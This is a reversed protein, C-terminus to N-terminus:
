RGWGRRRRRRWRRRRWGRWGRLRRGQWGRGRRRREGGAALIADDHGRSPVKGAVLAGEVREVEARAEGGEEVADRGRVDREAERGVRVGGEGDEGDGGLDDHGARRHHLLAHAQQAPQPPDARKVHEVLREGDSYEGDSGCVGCGVSDVGGRRRRRGRGAGHRRGDIGSAHHLRAHHATRQGDELVIRRKVGGGKDGPEGRAKTGM